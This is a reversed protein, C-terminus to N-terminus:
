NREVWVGNSTLELIKDQGIVKRLDEVSKNLIKGRSGLNEVASNTNAQDFMMVVWAAKVLIENDM